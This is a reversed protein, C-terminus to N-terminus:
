IIVSNTHFRISGFHTYFSREIVYALDEQFDQTYMENNQFCMVKMEILSSNCQLGDEM